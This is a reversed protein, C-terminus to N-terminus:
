RCAELEGPFWQLFPVTIRNPKQEPMKTLFHFVCPGVQLLPNYIDQEPLWFM